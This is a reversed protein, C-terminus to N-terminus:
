NGQPNQMSQEFMAKAAAQQAAYDDQANHVPAVEQPEINPDIQEQPLEEQIPQEEVMQEKFAPALDDLNRPALIKKPTEDFEPCGEISEHLAKQSSNYAQSLFDELLSDIRDDLKWNIECEENVVKIDGMELTEDAKLDWHQSLMYEKGIVTEIVVLDDPNLLITAGKKANPLISVAKEVTEKLFESNGAIEKKTIVKVLRSVMYTLEDTVDRDVERLPNALSDALFRFREAQELVVKQGSDLGESHGKLFGDESGQLMGKDYGEKTGQELGQNFGDQHGQALGEELGKQLGEEHGQNFGENYADQRIKELEELSIGHVGNEDETPTNQEEELIKQAELIAAKQAMEERLKMAAKLNQRQQEFFGVRIGLANTQDIDEDEDSLTPWTKVRYHPNAEAKTVTSVKRNYRKDVKRPDYVDTKHTEVTEAGSNSDPFFDDEMM